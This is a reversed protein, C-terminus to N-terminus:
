NTEPQPETRVPASPPADPVLPSDPALQAQNREQLLAVQATLGVNNGLADDREASIKEIDKKLSANEQILITLQATLGACQDLAANRQNALAQCTINHTQDDM